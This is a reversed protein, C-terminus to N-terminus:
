GAPRARVESSSIYHWRISTQSIVEGVELELSSKNLLNHFPTLSVIRTLNFSSMQIAVGVQVCVCVGVYVCMAECRTVHCMSFRLTRVPHHGMVCSLLHLHDEPPSM